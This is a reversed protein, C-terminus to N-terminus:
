FVAYIVSEIDVVQMCSLHVTIHPCHGIKKLQYFTFYELTDIEVGDRCSTAGWRKARM